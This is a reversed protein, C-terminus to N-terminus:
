NTVSGRRALKRNVVGLADRFYQFKPKVLAKTFIDAVQANTRFSTLEMEESLDKEHIFHHCVEIHKTRAHFVPNSALKIASENDFKIKVAHDVEHFMDRILRKLWIHLWPQQLINLKPALCLM